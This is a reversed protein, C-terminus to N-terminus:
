RGPRARRSRTSRPGTGSRGASRANASWIQACAAANSAMASWSDSSARHVRVARGHLRGVADEVVGLPDVEAVHISGCQRDTMQPPGRAARPRRSGAAPPGDATAAPRRTGSGPGWPRPPPARASPAPRPRPGPILAERDSGTTSKSRATTSARSMGYGAVIPSPSTFSRSTTSRAMCALIARRPTRRSPSSGPKTQQSRRCAAGPRPGTM